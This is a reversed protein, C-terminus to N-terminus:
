ITRADIMHITTSSGLGLVTDHGADILVFTVDSFPSLINDSGADVLDFDEVLGSAYVKNNGTYRKNNGGLVIIGSGEVTLGSGLVLGNKNNIYNFDGVVISNKNDDIINSKGYVVSNETTNLINSKNNLNGWANIENALLRKEIFLNNNPVFDGISGDASVLEVETLRNSNLDYDIIRNIHWWSNAVWIRENMRLNVIDLYNLKFLARMMYGNEFIDYQTRYFRNFLGNNTITSYNHTYFECVGFNIDERPEGSNPYFHGVHRYVLGEETSLVSGITPNTVRYHFYVDNEYVQGVMMIKVNTKARSPILPINKKYKWEMVATSFAPKVTSSNKIFQNFFIYQLQGYELKTFDKYAKLIADDSDENYMFDKIKTQTNSLIELEISNRDVKDNWNLEEGDEYFRDRTKIILNKENNKDQQIYLNYMNTLSVIFDSQKFDTPLVNNLNLTAGEYLNQSPANKFYGLPNTPFTDFGYETDCFRDSLNIPTGNLTEGSGNWRYGWFEPSSLSFDASVVVKVKTATPNQVRLFEGSITAIFENTYNPANIYRWRQNLSISYENIGVEQAAIPPFLANDNVDYAVLFVKVREKILTNLTNNKWRLGGPDGGWDYGDPFVVNGQTDLRVEGQNNPNLPQTDIVTGPSFTGVDTMHKIFTQIIFSSEFYMTGEDPDLAYEGVVTSYANSPDFLNLQTDNDENFIVVAPTEIPTTPAFYEPNGGGAPIRGPQISTGPYTVDVNPYKQLSYGYNFQSTIGARFIDGKIGPIIRDRNTTIILKDINHEFLEPFEYTFGAESMIADMVTKVYIAPRFDEPEYLHLLQQSGAPWEIVPADALFYQYGDMFTGERMNKIINAKNHIFSYKSLNLDTLFRGNIITHFDSNDSKLYVDYIILENGNENYRKFIRRIQFVGVFVVQGDVSLVCPEVRQTDVTLSNENVDFVPGLIENNRANGFLKITKSYEGGRSSIDRVDNLNYNMPIAGVGGLNLEGWNTLTLKMNTM